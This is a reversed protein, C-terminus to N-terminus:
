KQLEIKHGLLDEIAKFGEMNAWEVPDRLIEAFKPGLTPAEVKTHRDDKLLMAVLEPDNILIDEPNM